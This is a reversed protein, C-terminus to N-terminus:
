RRRLKRRIVGMGALTPGLLFVTGPLPVAATDGSRVALAYFNSDKYGDNQYGDQFSFLRAVITPDPAYKSDSWYRQAELNTFLGTNKLGGGAVNGLGDYYLHGM